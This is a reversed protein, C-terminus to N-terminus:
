LLGNAVKTLQGAYYLAIQQAEQIFRGSIRRWTKGNNLVWQAIYTGRDAHVVNFGINNAHRTEGDQREDRTQHQYLRVMARELAWPKYKILGVVEERTWRSDKTKGKLMTEVDRLNNLPM